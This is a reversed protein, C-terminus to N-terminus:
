ELLLRCVLHEPTEHARLHTYSVPKTYSHPHLHHLLPHAENVTNLHRVNCNSLRSFSSHYSTHTPIQTPPTDPLSHHSHLFSKDLPFRLPQTSHVHSLHFFPPSLAPSHSLIKHVSQYQPESKKLSHMQPVLSQALLM